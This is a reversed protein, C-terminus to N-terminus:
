REFRQTFFVKFWPDEVRPGGAARRCTKHPGPLSIWLIFLTIIISTQALTCSTWFFRYRKTHQALVAFQDSNFIFGRDPFACNLHQLASTQSRVPTVIQKSENQRGLVAPICGKLWSRVKISIHPIAEVKCIWISPNTSPVLDMAQVTVLDSM